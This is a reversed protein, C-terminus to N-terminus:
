PLHKASPTQSLYYESNEIPVTDVKRKRCFDITRNTAITIVWTSFKHKPSYRWLNNYIKVFIEQSLDLSEEYDGLIKYVTAFVLNKYRRVLESFSDENGKLSEQVLAYDSINEM